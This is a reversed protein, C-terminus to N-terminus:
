SDGAYSITLTINAVTDPAIIFDAYVPLDYVPPSGFAYTLTLTENYPCHCHGSISMNTASPLGNLKMGTAYLPFKQQNVISFELIETVVGNLSTKDKVVTPTVFIASTRLIDYHSITFHALSTSNAWQPRILFSVVDSNKNSTATVNVAGSQSLAFVRFDSLGYESPVSESFNSPNPTNISFIPAKDFRRCKTLTDLRPM